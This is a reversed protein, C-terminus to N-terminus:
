GEGDVHIRGLLFGLLFQRLGPHIGEAEVADDYSFWGFASLEDSMRICDTELECLFNLPHVETYPDSHKMLLVQGSKELTGCLTLPLTRM